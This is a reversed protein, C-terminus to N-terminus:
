YSAAEGDGHAGQGGVQLAHAGVRVDGRLHQAQLVRRHAEVGVRLQVAAPAQQLEEVARPRPVPRAKLRELPLQVHRPRQVAHPPQEQHRGVAPPARHHAGGLADVGAAGLLQGTPQDGDGPPVADVDFVVRHVSAGAGPEAGAALRPRHGLFQEGGRGGAHDVFLVLVELRVPM